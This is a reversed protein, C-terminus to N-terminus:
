IQVNRSRDTKTTQVETRVRRYERYERSEYDTLRGEDLRLHAFVPEANSSHTYALPEQVTM